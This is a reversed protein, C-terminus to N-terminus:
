SCPRCTGRVSRAHGAGWAKLRSKNGSCAALAAVAERGGAERSAGRGGADCARREVQCYAVANLWGSLRSVELTVVMSRM